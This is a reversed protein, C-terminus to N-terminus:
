ENKIISKYIEDIKKQLEYDPLSILYIALFTGLMPIISLLAYKSASRGKRKAIKYNLIIFPISVIFFTVFTTILQGSGGPPVTGM